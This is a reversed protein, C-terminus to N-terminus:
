LFSRLSAVESVVFGAARRAVRCSRGRRYRDATQPPRALGAYRSQAHWCHDGNASASRDGFGPLFLRRYHARRPRRSRSLSRLVGQIDGSRAHGRRTSLIRLGSPRYERLRGPEGLEQNRSGSHRDPCRDADGGGEKCFGADPNGARGEEVTKRITADDAIALYAPRGIGVTLAGQGNTGHCGSCNQSYLLRFDAIDAPRIVATEAAQHGPADCSTVALMATVCLGAVTFTKRPKRM